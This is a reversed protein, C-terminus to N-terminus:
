CALSPSRSRAIRVLISSEGIGSPAGRLAGRVAYTADTGRQFRRPTRGSRSQSGTAIATSYRLTWYRKARRELEKAETDASEANALVTLLEDSRYAPAGEPALAAIMQRQLVLDAYRRIPSSLQAYYDVGVGGHFEPYLSLRPRQM